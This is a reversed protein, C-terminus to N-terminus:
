PVIKIPVQWFAAKQTSPDLVTLQCLYEGPALSALPITLKVPVAKSKLHMGETITFAKTEFSREGGRFFTAFVVLPQMLEVGREYAQLYVYLDRGKSFVRTVSPLLKL